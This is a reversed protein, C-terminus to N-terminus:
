VGITPVLRGATLLRAGGLLVHSAADIWCESNFYDHRFAGPDIARSASLRRFM